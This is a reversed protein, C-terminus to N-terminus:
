IERGAKNTIFIGDQFRRRDRNNVRTIAEISAAAQGVKEKDAGKVTIDNGKIEIDVGSKIKRKRAVSEGLFNKVIFEGNEFSVTMPFHGSCVKLTYEFGEAAGKIMNQIHAKTTKLLMKQKKAANKSSLTIFDDEKSIKVAPIYFARELEGEPGKIKIKPGELIVEIGEPIAVKDMLDLKAM